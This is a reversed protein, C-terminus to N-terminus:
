NGTENTARAQKWRAIAIERSPSPYSEFGCNPCELWWASSTEPMIQHHIRYTGENCQPCYMNGFWARHAEIEEFTTIKM